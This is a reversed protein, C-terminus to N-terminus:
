RRRPEAHPDLWRRLGRDANMAHTRLTHTRAQTLKQIALQTCCPTRPPGLPVSTGDPPARTPCRSPWRRVTHATKDNAKWETASVVLTSGYNDKFSGILPNTYPTLDTFSFGNCGTATNTKDYIDKTDFSEAEAQTTADYKSSCYSMKAPATAAHYENKVFKSPNYADTASNQTIIYGGTIKKVSSVSKGWSSGSYWSSDTITIYSGFNSKYTGKVFNSPNGITGGIM